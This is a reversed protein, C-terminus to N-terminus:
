GKIVEALYRVGFTAAWAVLLAGGMWVGDATDLLECPQVSIVVTQTIPTGGGFPQLVVTASTATVDSVDVVYVAAGSSLVKGVEGSVSARAAGLQDAYCQEGVQWGM